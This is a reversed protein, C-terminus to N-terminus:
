AAKPAEDEPVKPAEDEPVKESGVTDGTEAETKATKAAPAKRAAPKRAVPQQGRLEDVTNKVIDRIESGAGKVIEIAGRAEDAIRSSHDPIMEIQTNVLDKLDAAKAAARLHDAVADIQGEVLKTQQKWLKNVTRHSVGSLKVGFRAIARVPKKGRTVRGAAKETSQRALKLADDYRDRAKDAIDSISNEIQLNM